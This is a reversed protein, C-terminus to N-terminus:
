LRFVHLYQQQRYRLARFAGHRCQELRYIDCGQKGRDGKSSGSTRDAVQDLPMILNMMCQLNDGPQISRHPGGPLPKVPMRWAWFPVLILSALRKFVDSEPLGNVFRDFWGEDGAMPEVGSSPVGVACKARFKMLAGAPMSSRIGPPSSAVRSIGPISVSANALPTRIRPSMPSRLPVWSSRSETPRGLSQPTTSRM